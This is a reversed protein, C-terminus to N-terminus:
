EGLTYAIMRCDACSLNSQCDNWRKVSPKRNGNCEEDAELIEALNQHRINGLVHMRNFICPIVDGNACVALKGRIKKQETEAGVEKLGTQQGQYHRSNPLHSNQPAQFSINESHYARGRGTQHVPDFRVADSNLAFEAKVFDLVAQEHGANAEMVAMGVRVKFMREQARKIAEKTRKFSGKVGTIADHTAADAAYLSFAFMPEYPLLADLLKESLLLGNTYIEIAEFKLECAYSVAKVLDRHILPDGGTFQVIPSGLERAQELAACIEALSLFDQCEPSSSAYCHICCENCQNTIELFFLGLEDAILMKQLSPPTLSAQSLGHLWDNKQEIIQLYSGSAGDEEHLLAFLDRAFVGELSFRKESQVPHILTIKDNAKDGLCIVHKNAGLFIYFPQQM